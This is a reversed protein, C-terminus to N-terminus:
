NNGAEFDDEDSSENKDLLREEKLKASLFQEKSAISGEAMNKFSDIGKLSHGDTSGGAQGRGRGGCIYNKFRIAYIFFTRECLTCTTLCLFACHDVM